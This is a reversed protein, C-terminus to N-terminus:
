AKIAEGKKPDLKDGMSINLTGSLVTVNEDAPHTHAPIKYGSPFKLRMVFPGEKGPNGALVAVQAGKPLAPPAAVWKISGPEVITYQDQATACVPAFAVLAFGLSLGLRAAIPTMSAEGAPYQRCVIVFYSVAPLGPHSQEPHKAPPFSLRAIAYSYMRLSRRSPTANIVSFRGSFSLASLKGNICSTSSASVMKSASSSMLDTMRVPAPSRAKEAPASMWSIAPSLESSSARRLSVRPRM